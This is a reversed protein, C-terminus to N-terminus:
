ELRVKAFVPLIRFSIATSPSKTLNLQVTSDQWNIDNFNAQVQFQHPMAPPLNVGNQNFSIKVSTPVLKYKVHPETWSVPLQLVQGFSPLVTLKVLASKHSMSVLDSQTLEGINIALEKSVDSKIDKMDLALPLFSPLANVLSKPGSIEISGPHLRAEGMMDFGDAFQANNIDAYLRIRRKIRHEFRFQNPQVNLYNIDLKPDIAKIYTVLKGHELQKSAIPNAIRYDIERKKGLMYGLLKWGDGDVNASVFKPLNSVPMYSEEDYVINVPFLIYTSYNKSLANLFWLCAALFCCVVLIRWEHITVDYIHRVLRSIM